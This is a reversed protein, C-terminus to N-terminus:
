CIQREKEILPESKSLVCNSMRNELIHVHTIGCQGSSDSLGMKSTRRELSGNMYLSVLPLKLVCVRVWCVRSSKFSSTCCAQLGFAQLVTPGTQFSVAIYYM